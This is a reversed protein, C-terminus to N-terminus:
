RYYGEFFEMLERHRTALVGGDECRFHDMEDKGKKCDYGTEDKIKNHISVGSDKNLDQIIETETFKVVKYDDIGGSSNPKYVRVCPDDSSECELLSVKASVKTQRAASVGFAIIAIVSFVVTVQVLSRRVM